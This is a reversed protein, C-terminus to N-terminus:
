KINKGTTVIFLTILVKYAHCTARKLSYQDYSISFYYNIIM